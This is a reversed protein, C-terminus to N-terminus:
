HVSTEPDAERYGTGWESVPRAQRAQAVLPVGTMVPAHAAGDIRQFDSPDTDAPFSKDSIQAKSVGRAM